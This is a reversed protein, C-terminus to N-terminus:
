KRAKEREARAAQLMQMLEAQRENARAAGLATSEKAIEPAISLSKRGLPSEYFAALQILEEETFHKAYIRAMDREFEATAYLKKYWARFVDEYPALDANDRVAAMASEIGASAHAAGGTARVLRLAAEEKTEPNAALTVSLPLAFLSILVVALRTRRM